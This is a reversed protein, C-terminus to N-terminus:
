QDRWHTDKKNYRTCYISVSPFIDHDFNVFQDYEVRDPLKQSLDSVLM